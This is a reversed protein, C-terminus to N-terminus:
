RLGMRAAVTAAERDDPLRERWAAVARRAAAEDKRALALRVRTRHLWPEQPWQTVAREVIGAAGELDGVEFALSALTRTAAFGLEM